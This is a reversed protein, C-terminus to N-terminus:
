PTVGVMRPEEGHHACIEFAVRIKVTAREDAGDGVERRRAPRAERLVLLREVLKACAAKGSFGQEDKMM